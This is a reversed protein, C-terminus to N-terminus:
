EGCGAEAVVLAGLKAPWVPMCLCPWAAGACGALPGWCPVVLVEAGVAAAAAAAPVFATGAPKKSSLCASALARPMLSYTSTPKFDKHRAYAAHLLSLQLKFTCRIAYIDIKAVCHQTAVQNLRDLLWIKSM